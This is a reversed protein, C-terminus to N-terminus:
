VVVNETMEEKEIDGIRNQSSKSKKYFKLIIAELDRRKGYYTETDLRIFDVLISPIGSLNAGLIDIFIQDGVFVAESKKVGLKKVAETYNKPNPKHADYIYESDINKIFRQIREESNNSVLLTKLGCSHIYKFLDDVEPTSDDGHHVLTNDIDFIVAKYGSEFLKKYDIIFVNKVYNFPYLFKFFM